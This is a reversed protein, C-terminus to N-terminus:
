RRLFYDIAVSFAAFGACGVAAAKVGAIICQLAFVCAPILAALTGHCTKRLYRKLWNSWWHYLRIIYNNGSWKKGYVLFVVFLLCCYYTPVFAFFLCLSSSRSYMSMNSLVYM